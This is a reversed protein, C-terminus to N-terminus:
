IYCTNSMQQRMYLETLFESDIVNHLAFKSFMFTPTTDALSFFSWPQLCMFEAM